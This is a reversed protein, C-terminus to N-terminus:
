LTPRINLNINGHLKPAQTSHRTFFRYLNTDYANHQPWVMDHENYWSCSRLNSPRQPILWNWNRHIRLQGEFFWAASPGMTWGGTFGRTNRVLTSHFGETWWWYDSSAVSNLPAKNPRRKRCRTLLRLPDTRLRPVWVPHYWDTLRVLALFAFKTAASWDFLTTNTSLFRWSPCIMNHWEQYRPLVNIKYINTM